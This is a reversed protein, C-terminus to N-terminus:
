RTTYAQADRLIRRGDSTTRYVVSIMRGNKTKKELIVIYRKRELRKATTVLTTEGQEKGLIKAETLTILIM